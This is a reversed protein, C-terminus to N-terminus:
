RGMRKRLEAALESQTMQPNEAKLQRALGRADEESLPGGESSFAQKIASAADGVARAGGGAMKKVVGGLGGWFAPVPAGEEEPPPEGFQERMRLARESGPEVGPPFYGLNFAREVAGEKMGGFIPDREVGKLYDFFPDQTDKPTRMGAIKEASERGLKSEGARFDRDLKAAEASKAMKGFVRENEAQESKREGYAGVGGKLAGVVTRFFNMRGRRGM